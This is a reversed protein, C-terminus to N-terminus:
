GRNMIRSELLILTSFPLLRVSPDPSNDPGMGYGVFGPMDMDTGALASPAGSVM